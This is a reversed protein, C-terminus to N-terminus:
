LLNWVEKFSRLSKSMKKHNKLFVVISNAEENKMNISCVKSSYKLVRKNCFYWEYGFSGFSFSHMSTIKDLSIKKGAREKNYYYIYM